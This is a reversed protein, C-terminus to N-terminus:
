VALAAAVLLMGLALINGIDVGHTPYALAIREFRSCM